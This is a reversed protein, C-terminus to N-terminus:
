RNVRLYQIGYYLEYELSTNTFYKSRLEDHYMYTFLFTKDILYLSKDILYKVSECM